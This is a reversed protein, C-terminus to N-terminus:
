TPLKKALVVRNRGTNKAEYLAQDALAILTEGDEADEPLGAVGFSATVLQHGNRAFACEIRDRLRESLHEAEAADGISVLVAFEEGGWRYATEGDRVEAQLVAAVEQLVADGQQHGYRDNLEKFHDLDLMVLAMPHGHRNAGAIASALDTNLRRRNALSTLPDVQSLRETAAHLRSAEIAAGALTALLEVAGVAAVGVDHEHDTGCQLVGVVRAGVVLPVAVGDCGDVEGDGRAVQGYKAARGVLGVGLDCREGEDPLVPGRRSDHAVQLGVHEDDVMWLLAPGGTLRVVAQVTTESVYRVNLSGGIERAMVLITRLRETQAILRNAHAESEERERRLNTIMDALGDRLGTLEAWGDVPAPPVLRGDQIDRMSALLGNVPAVVNRQMRHRERLALALTALAVVLVAIGVAWQLVGDRGQADELAAILDARLQAHQEEYQDFLSKGQLLFAKEDGGVQLNRAPQAWGRQWQQQALLLDLVGGRLTPAALLRQMGANSATIVSQAVAYPALFSQDSTSVFARLGTEEDLLAQNANELAVLGQQLEATEPLSVFAVFALRCAVLLVIVLAGVTVVIGLRRVETVLRPRRVDGPPDEGM